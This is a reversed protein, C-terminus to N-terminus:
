QLARRIWKLVRDVAGPRNAPMMKWRIARSALGFPFMGAIMFWAATLVRRSWSFRGWRSAAIGRLALGVRNDERYPHTDPGLRLSALRLELHIPDKLYLSPRLWVGFAAAKARLVRDREEDHALRRRARRFFADVTEVTPSAAYANDGHMRYAGLCEELSVVAGHFPVVIALYGDAGFPFEKEPMPMTLELVRRAFANGTTVVTEYRGFEFLLPLVDGGDLAVELPPHVDVHTGDIDVLDLRFHTKSEGTVWTEVVRQAAQPYLWDDADLFMLIEGRSARFGANFAAGQGGNVSQLVPIIRDGYGEIIRRSEDTSADDVVIVEVRAYRQALASNISQPLFRAYNFNNVVISILPPDIIM